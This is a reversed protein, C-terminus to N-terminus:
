QKNLAKNILAEMYAAKEPIADYYFRIDPVIRLRLRSGLETRLYGKAKELAKLVDQVEPDAEQHGILAFNIKAISLDKSVKCNTINIKEFRPDKAEKILLSSLTRQIEQAVRTPRSFNQQKM